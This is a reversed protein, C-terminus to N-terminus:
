FLAGAARPTENASWRAVTSRRVYRQAQHEAWAATLSWHVTAWGVLAQV